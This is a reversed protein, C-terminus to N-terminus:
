RCEYPKWKNEKGDTENDELGLKRNYRKLENLVKARLFKPIYVGMVALNEMISLVYNFLILYIFIMGIDEMQVYKFFALLLFYFLFTLSHKIIGKLGVSSDSVKWKWAKANGTLFDILILILLFFIYDNRSTSEFILNIM